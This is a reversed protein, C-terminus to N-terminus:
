TAKAEVPHSHHRHYSPSAEVRRMAGMYKVTPPSCPSSPAIIVCSRSWSSWLLPLAEPIQRMLVFSVAPAFQNRANDGFTENQVEFRRRWSAEEVRSLVWGDLVRGGGRGGRQFENAVHLGQSSRRDSSARPLCAGCHPCRAYSFRRDRRLSAPHLTLPRASDVVLDRWTSWM